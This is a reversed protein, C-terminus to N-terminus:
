LEIPEQGVIEIQVRGNSTDLSMRRGSEGGCHQSLLPIQLEKLVQECALINQSGINVAAKTPFMSAGGAMKAVLRPETNALQTLLAVLKPVAQNVYKGPRDTEGDAQPLVIHALGGVQLRRDFLALGICSGLLTRLIQGDNATAMEGMRISPKNAQQTSKM